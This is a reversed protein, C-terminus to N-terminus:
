EDDEDEDGDDLKLLGKAESKAPLLEDLHKICARYSKDRSTFIASSPREKEKGHEDVEVNGNTQIDDWLEDLSVKLRSAEQLLGEVLERKNTPIDRYLKALRDYERKEQELKTIDM